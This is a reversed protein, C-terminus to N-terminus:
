DKWVELNSLVENYDFRSKREMKKKHNRPGFKFFCIEKGKKHNRPGFKFFSSIEQGNKKNRPRFKMFFKINGKRTKKHIRPGFKFFVYYKREKNKKQSKETWVYFFFLWFKVSWCEEVSKWVCQLSHALRPLIWVAVQIHCLM